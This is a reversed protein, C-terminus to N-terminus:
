VYAEMASALTLLKEDDGRWGILQVGVPLGAKTTGAPVSLAPVGALAPPATMLDALYMQLLDDAKEGIKFAPYPATPTVLVDYQEFAKRMEEILLTRVQQAKIYYADYFGSSLVFNGMMIRRKNEPMFNEGGRGGGYRVGDYRALNSAVEASMVVYYIPVAYKLMPLNVESAEHGAKVLKQVYERTKVVVEADVGEGLFNDIVGIKLREQPADVGYVEDLSTSDLPDQGAMVRMVQRVEEASKAFAGQTDMSSAMSVVGYRSVAGFTPRMGFVGNFSAPERISGGTDSGIAFPVVGLAVAAASGGSSGGAVRTKDTANHTVGFASNETSAGHAFADLNTKGICIAGAAELKRVATAQLPAVFEELIKASATTPAELDLYNDKLAYPVGALPGVTEGAAIRADIERAQRLAREETLNVFINYESAAKAKELAAEVLSVASTKKDAKIM